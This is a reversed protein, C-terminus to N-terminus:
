RMNQLPILWPANPPRHQWIEASCTLKKACPSICSSVDVPLAELGQKLVQSEEWFQLHCCCFDTVVTPIVPTIITQKLVSFISNPSWEVAHLHSYKYHAVFWGSVSRDPSSVMSAKHTSRNEVWLSLDMGTDLCRQTMSIPLPGFGAPDSPKMETPPPHLLKWVETVLTEVCEHQRQVDM